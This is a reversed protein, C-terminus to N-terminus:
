QLGSRSGSRIISVPRRPRVVGDRNRGIFLTAPERPARGSSRSTCSASQPTREHRRACQITLSAELPTTDEGAVDVASLSETCQRQVGCHCRVLRAELSVSRVAGRGVAPEGLADLPLKRLRSGNSVRPRRVTAARVVANVSVGDAAAPCGDRLVM